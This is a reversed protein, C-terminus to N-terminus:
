RGSLAERIKRGLTDSTLPKARPIWSGPERQHEGEARLVGKRREILGHRQRGGLTYEGRWDGSLREWDARSANFAVPRMAYSCGSALGVALVFTSVLSLRRMDGEERIATVAVTIGRAAARAVSLCCDAEDHRRSDPM